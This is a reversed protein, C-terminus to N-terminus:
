KKMKPVRVERAKSSRGRAVKENAKQVGRNTKRTDAPM